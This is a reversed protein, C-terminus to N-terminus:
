SASLLKCIAGYLVRSQSLGHWPALSFPVLCPGRGRISGRIIWVYLTSGGGRALPSALFRQGRARKERVSPDPKHKIPRCHSRGSDQFFSHSSIGGKKFRLAPYAMQCTLFSAPHHSQSACFWGTLIASEMEPCLFGAQVSWSACENM